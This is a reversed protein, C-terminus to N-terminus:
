CCRLNQQFFIDCCLFLTTLETVGLYSAIEVGGRTSFCGCVVRFFVAGSSENPLFTKVFVLNHSPLSIPLLEFLFFVVGGGGGELVFVSGVVLLAYEFGWCNASRYHRLM